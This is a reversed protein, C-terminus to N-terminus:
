ASIPLEAPAESTNRRDRDIQEATIFAEDDNTPQPLEQIPKPFAKYIEDALNRLQEPDGHISLTTLTWSFKDNLVNMGVSGVRLDVSSPNTSTKIELNPVGMHFLVLM